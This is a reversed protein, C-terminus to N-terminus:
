GQVQEEPDEGQGPRGPQIPPLFLGDPGLDDLGGDDIRRDQCRGHLPLVLGLPINLALGDRLLPALGLLPLPLKRRLALISEPLFRPFSLFNLTQPLLLLDAGKLPLPLRRLGGSLHVSLTLRRLGLGPRFLGPTPLRFLLALQKFLLPPEGLDLRLALRLLGLTLRLLRLALRLFRRALHFFLSTLGFHLTLGLQLTLRFPLPLRLCLGALARLLLAPNLLLTQRLFSNLGFPLALRFCLGLALGLFAPQRLFLSLGLSLFAPQRLLPPLGFLLPARRFLRRALSLFM